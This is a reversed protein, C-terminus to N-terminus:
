ELWGLEIALHIKDAGPIEHVEKIEAIIAKHAM